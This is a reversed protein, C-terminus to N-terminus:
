LWSNNYDTRYGPFYEKQKKKIGNGNQNILRDKDAPNLWRGRQNRKLWRKGKERSESNLFFVKLVCSSFFFRAFKINEINCKKAIINDLKRWIFFFLLPIFFKASLTLFLVFYLKICFRTMQKENKLIETNLKELTILVGREWNMLSKSISIM